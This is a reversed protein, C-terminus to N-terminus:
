KINHMLKRYYVRKMNNLLINIFYLEMYIFDRSRKDFYSVNGEYGIFNEEFITFSWLLILVYVRKVKFLISYVYAALIYIPNFRMMPNIAYDFFLHLSLRLSTITLSIMPM